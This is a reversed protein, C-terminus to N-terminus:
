NLPDRGPLYFPFLYLTPLFFFVFAACLAYGTEPVLRWVMSTSPTLREVWWGPYLALLSSFSCPSVSRRTLVTWIGRLRSPALLNWERGIVPVSTEVEFCADSDHESFGDKSARLLRFSPTPSLYIYRALPLSLMTFICVNWYMVIWWLDYLWFDQELDSFECTLTILTGLRLLTCYILSHGVGYLCIYCSALLAFM